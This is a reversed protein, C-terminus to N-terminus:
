HSLSVVKSQWVMKQLTLKQGWHFAFHEYALSFGQREYLARAASLGQFTWLYVQSYNQSKCFEIAKTMLEKGVGLGQFEPSVIFWRLRAGESNALRGDIAIAGVFKDHWTAVWFGDREPEFENIFDSLETAVEIEFSKDLGL